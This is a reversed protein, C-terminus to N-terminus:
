THSGMGERQRTRGEIPHTGSNSAPRSFVPDGPGIAVSM